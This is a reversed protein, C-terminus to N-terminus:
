VTGFLLAGFLKGEGGRFFEGGPLLRLQVGGDIIQFAAVGGFAAVQFFLQAIFQEGLVFFLEGM